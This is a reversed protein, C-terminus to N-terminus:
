SKESEPLAFRARLAMQASILGALLGDEFNFDQSAVLEPHNHPNLLDESTLRPNLERALRLVKAQQQEIMTDFYRTVEQLSQKDLM